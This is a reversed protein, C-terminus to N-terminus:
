FAKQYSGRSIANQLKITEQILSDLKDVVDDTTAEPEADKLENIYKDFKVAYEEKTVSMKKENELQKYLADFYGKTDGSDFKDQALAGFYDAKELSNLYSLSGSYASEIRKLIDKYFNSENQKEKVLSNYDDQQQRRISAAMARGWELEAERMRRNAEAIADLFNQHIALRDYYSSRDAETVDNATDIM